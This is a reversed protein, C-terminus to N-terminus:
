LVPWLSRGDIDKPATGDAVEIMTPLLDVLSVVAQTLGPKVKGPWSIMLPVRIGADYLNWKAFPFQAGQDATYIFLTNDAYGHKSLSDLVDGVQKDMWTVDTFYRCLADRTEPTDLLYPPLTLKAPDYGNNEPWYVHPST